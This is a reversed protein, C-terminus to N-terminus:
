PSEHVTTYGRWPAMGVDEKLKWDAVRGLRNVDLKSEVM